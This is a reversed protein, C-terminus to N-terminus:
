KKCLTKYHNLLLKKQTIPHFKTAPKIQNFVRIGASNLISTFWKTVVIGIIHENACITLSSQLEDPSRVATSGIRADPM